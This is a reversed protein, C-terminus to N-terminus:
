RNMIITRGNERGNRKRVIHTADAEIASCRVSGRHTRKTGYMEVNHSVNKENKFIYSAIKIVVVFAILTIAAIIFEM